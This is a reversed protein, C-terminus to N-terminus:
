DVVLSQNELMSNIIETNTTGGLQSFQVNELKVKQTAEGNAESSIAVMVGDEEETLSLYKDLEHEEAGVLLASFDLTDGEDADYSGTNGQNFDTVVDLAPSGAVGQDGAQWKFTDAGPGGTLSDDGAGGILIDDDEDGILNNHGADGQLTKGDKITVAM